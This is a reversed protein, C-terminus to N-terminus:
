MKIDAKRIWGSFIIKFVMFYIIYLGMFLIDESLITENKAVTGESVLM